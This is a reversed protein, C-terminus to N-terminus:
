GLFEEFKISGSTENFCECSGGGTGTSLWSLVTMTEGDWKKFIWKIIIIIIIIIITGDLGLEEREIV